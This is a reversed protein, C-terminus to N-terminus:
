VGSNGNSIYDERYAESELFREVFESPKINVYVTPHMNEINIRFQTFVKNRNQIANRIVSESFEDNHEIFEDILPEINDTENAQEILNQVDSNKVVNQIGSEKKVSITTVVDNDIKQFEELDGLFNEEIIYINRETICLTGGRVLNFRVSGSSDDEIMPQIQSTFDM